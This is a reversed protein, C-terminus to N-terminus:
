THWHSNYKANYFMQIKTKTVSEDQPLSKLNESSHSLFGWHPLEGFENERGEEMFDGCGEPSHQPELSALELPLLHGLSSWDAREMWQGCCNTFPTAKDDLITEDSHIEPSKCTYQNM